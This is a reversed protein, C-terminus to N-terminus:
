GDEDELPLPTGVGPTNTPPWTAPLLIVRDRASGREFLIELPEVAARTGLERLLDCYGDWDVDDLRRDGLAIIQDGIRLGARHAAGDRWLTSILVRGERFEAFFGLTPRVDNAITPESRPSLYLQRRRWDITVLFHELFDVGILVMTADDSTWVPFDELVVSAGIQLSRVTPRLLVTSPAGYVTTVPAGFARPTSADIRAGAREVVRRPAELYRNSGLDIAARGRWEGLSIEVFPVGNADPVFPIARTSDVELEDVDTAVRLLEADFDLQWVGARMATVGFLGARSLCVLPNPPRPWLRVALVDRFHLSGLQVGSLLLLSEEAGRGLPDQLSLRGAPTADVRDALEPAIAFPAGTDLIFRQEEDVGGLRADVLLLGLERVMSFTQVVEAGELTVRQSIASIRALEEAASRSSRSSHFSRFDGNNGIRESTPRAASCSVACLITVSLHFIFPTFSLM